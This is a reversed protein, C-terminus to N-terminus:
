AKVTLRYTVKCIATAIIMTSVAEVVGNIGVLMGIFYILSAGGRLGLILESNGFMLIIGGTVLVTNVLPAVLSAGAFSFIETKDLKSFSTFAIGALWGMIIRPFITLIFTFLPNIAFLATGFPDLGFCQMFSTIGFVGGLFAGAGPGMLIAGVAVPIPLFTISIVGARLYGFPTFALLFIVASLLALRTLMSINIRNNEM